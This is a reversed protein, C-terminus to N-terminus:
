LIHYQSTNNILMIKKRHQSTLVKLNNKNANILSANSSCSYGIGYQSSLSASSSASPDESSQCSPSCRTSTPRRRSPWRTPPTASCSGLVTRTTMCFRLSRINLILNIIIIHFWTHFTGRGRFIEHLLLSHPLRRLQLFFCIKQMRQDIKIIVWSRQWPFWWSASVLVEFTTCNKGHKRM